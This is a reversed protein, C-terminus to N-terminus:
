ADKAVEKGARLQDTVSIPTWGPLGMLIREANKMPNIHGYYNEIM